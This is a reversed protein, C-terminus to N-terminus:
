NSFTHQLIGASADSFNRIFGFDDVPGLDICTIHEKDARHLDWGSVCEYIGCSLHEIRFAGFFDFTATAAMKM